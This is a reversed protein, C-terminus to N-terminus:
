PEVLRQLDRVLWPMETQDIAEELGFLAQAASVKAALDYVSAVPAASLSDFAAYADNTVRDAAAEDHCGNGNSLRDREAALTVVRAFGERIPESVSNRRFQIREM